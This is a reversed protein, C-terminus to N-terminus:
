ASCFARLPLVCCRGLSIWGTLPSGNRKEFTQLAKQRALAIEAVHKDMAEGTSVPPVYARLAAEQGLSGLALLLSPIAFFTEEQRLAEALCPGDTIDGLAGLLRYANKRM